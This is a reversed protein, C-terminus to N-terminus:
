DEPGHERDHFVVGDVFGHCIHVCPGMRERQVVKIRVLLADALNNCSSSGAAYRYVIAQKMGSLGAKREPSKTGAAHASVVTEVTKLGERVLLAHEKLPPPRRQGEQTRRVASSCSVNQSKQEPSLHQLLPRCSSQM